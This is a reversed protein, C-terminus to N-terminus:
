EKILKGDQKRYTQGGLKMRAGNPAASAARQQDAALNAIELVTGALQGAAPANAPPTNIKRSIEGATGPVDVSDGFWGEVTKVEVGAQAALNQIASRQQSKPLRTIDALARRIPETQDKQLNQYGLDANVAPTTGKLASGLEAGFAAGRAGAAAVRADANLQALLKQHAFLEDRATKDYKAKLKLEEVKAQTDYIKIKLDNLYKDGAMEKEQGFKRADKAEGMLDQKADSLGTTAVKLSERIAATRAQFDSDIAKFLTDFKAPEPKYYSAVDLKRKVGESAAGYKVLAQAFAALAEGMRAGWMQKQYTDSEAAQAKKLDATLAEFGAVQAKLASNISDGWGPAKKDIEEAQTQVTQVATSAQQITKPDAQQSRSPDAQQSMPQKPKAGGAAQDASSFEGVVPGNPAGADLKNPKGDGPEGPIPTTTPGVPPAGDVATTGGPVQPAEGATSSMMAAGGAGLGLLGAGVQGKTLGTRPSPQGANTTEPAPPSEARGLMAENGAPPAKPEELRPFRRSRATIDAIDEDTVIEPNRVGAPEMASPTEAEGLRPTRRSRATIDADADMEIDPSRNSTPEVASTSELRPTEDAAPLRASSTTTEALSDQGKPLEAELKLPDGGPALEETPRATPLEVNDGMGQDFVDDQIGKSNMAAVEDPTIDTFDVPDDINPPTDGASTPVENDLTDLNDAARSATPSQTGRARNTNAKAADMNARAQALNDQTEKQTQSQDYTTKNATQEQRTRTKTRPPAGKKDLINPFMKKLAVAIEPDTKGAKKLEPTVETSDFNWQKLPIENNVREATNLTLPTDVSEFETDMEDLAASKPSQAPPVEVPKAVKGPKPEPVKDPNGWVGYDGSKVKSKLGQLEQLRAASDYGEAVKGPAPTAIALDAAADPAQVDGRGMLNNVSTDQLEPYAKRLADEIDAESANVRRMDAVMTKSGTLLDEASRDIKTSTPIKGSGKPNPNSGLMPGAAPGEQKLAGIIVDKEGQTLVANSLIDQELRTTLKSNNKKLAAVIAEPSVKKGLKTIISQIIGAM